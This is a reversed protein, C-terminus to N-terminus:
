VDAAFFRKKTFNKILVDHVVRLRYYSKSKIEPVLM